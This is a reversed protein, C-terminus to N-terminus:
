SAGARAALKQAVRALNAELEAPDVGDAAMLSVVIPDSLAESLSVEPAPRIRSRRGAPPCDDPQLGRAPSPDAVPRARSFREAMAALTDPAPLGLGGFVCAAVRDSCREEGRAGGTVDSIRTM